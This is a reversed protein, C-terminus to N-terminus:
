YLRGECAYARNLSFIWTLISSHHAHTFQQNRDKQLGQDKFRPRGIGSDSAARMGNQQHVAPLRNAAEHATFPPVNRRELSCRLGPRLAHPSVSMRPSPPSTVQDSACQRNPCAAHMFPAAAPITIGPRDQRAGAAQTAVLGM